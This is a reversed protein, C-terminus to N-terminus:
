EDLNPAQRCQNRNMVMKVTVHITYTDTRVFSGIGIAICPAKLGLASM